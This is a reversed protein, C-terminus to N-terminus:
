NGIEKFKNSLHERLMEVEELTCNEITSIYKQKQSKPIVDYVEIFSILFKKHLEICEQKKYIDTNKIFELKVEVTTDEDSVVFWKSKMFGKEVISCPSLYPNQPDINKINKNIIFDETSEFRIEYKTKDIEVVFVKKLLNCVVYDIDVPYIKKYYWIPYTSLESNIGSLMESKCM